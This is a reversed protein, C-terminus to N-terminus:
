TPTCATHLDLGVTVLRRRVSGHQGRLVNSGTATLNADSGEVDLKTSSTASAGLGRARAGLTSKASKGARAHANASDLVDGGDRGVRGTALYM